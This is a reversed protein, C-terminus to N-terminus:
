GQKPELLYFAIALERAAAKHAQSHAANTKATRLLSLHARARAVHWLTHEDDTSITDLLALANTTRVTWDFTLPRPGHRVLPKSRPKPPAYSPM